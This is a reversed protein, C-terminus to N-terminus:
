VYFSGFKCKNMIAPFAILRFTNHMLLTNSESKGVKWSESKGVERSGSKGVKWSESKGVKRSGSKGVERSELKGVKRSESKGVKRSESKGGERRGAKGAFFISKLGTRKEEDKRPMFLVLNFFIQFRHLITARAYLIM